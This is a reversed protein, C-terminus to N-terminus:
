VAKGGTDEGAIGGLNGPEEVLDLGAHAVRVLARAGRRACPGPGLREAAPLTGPRGPLASASRVVDRLEGALLASRHDLLLRIWSRLWRAQSGSSGRAEVPGWPGRRRRARRPM